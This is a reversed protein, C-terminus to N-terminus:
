TLCALLAFICCVLLFRPLCTMPAFITCSYNVHCLVLMFVLYSSLIMMTNALLGLYTAISCWSEGLVLILLLMFCMTFMAIAVLIEVLCAFVCPLLMITFWPYICVLTVIAHCFWTFLYLMCLSCSLIPMLYCTIYLGYDHSLWTFSIRTTTARLCHHYPNDVHDWTM